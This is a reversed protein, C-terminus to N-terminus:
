NQAAKHRLKKLNELLLRHKREEMELYALLFEQASDGRARVAQLSSESLEIFRDEIAVAKALGKWVADWEEDPPNLSERREIGDLIMQQIRHHLLSDSQIIEAVLRILHSGTQEMVSASLAVAADESRQWNRLIDVLMREEASLTM